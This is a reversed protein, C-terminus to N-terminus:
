VKNVIPDGKFNDIVSAKPELCAEELSLLQDDARPDSRFVSSTSNKLCM